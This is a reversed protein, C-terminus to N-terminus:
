QDDGYREAVIPHNEKYYLRTELITRLKSQALYHRARVFTDYVTTYPLGLVDAIEQTTCEEMKLDLIIQSTFPLSDYIEEAVDFGVVKQLPTLPLKTPRM